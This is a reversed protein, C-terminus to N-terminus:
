ANRPERRREIPTCVLLPIHDYRPLYYLHFDRHNAAALSWLAMKEEDEAIRVTFTGSRAGIQIQVRPHAALDAYWSPAKARGRSGAILLITRGRITYNLRVFRERESGKRKVTMLCAPAGGVKGCRKGATRRYLWGKITSVSGEM